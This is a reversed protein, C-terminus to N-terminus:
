PYYTAFVTTETPGYVHILKDPGLAHLAKRVHPVSAREGGFLIKRLGQLCEPEYDILLQFLATTVFMVTIRERRLTGSLVSVDLLADKDILVLGAGNLLAGFIDFVSGDFAYSSLQLLRDEPTINMYNTERVVRAAGLHTTLIGKPKGTTGSSYIVYALHEPGSTPEPNVAEEASY